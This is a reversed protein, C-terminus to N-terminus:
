DPRDLIDEVSLVRYVAPKDGVTRVDVTAIFAKRFPNDPQDLITAKVHDSAFRLPVPRSSIRDIVGLDGAKGKADDRVQHLYLVEGPYIRNEPVKATLFRRVGNQVAGAEVSNINFTTHISVPGTVNLILQSGGDKAVPEVIQTIQEAQKKTPIQDGSPRSGIFFQVLDNLSTIFGAFVEIHDIFAHAQEAFPALEAIVSGSRLEKVYLKVNGKARDHGAAVVYDEYVQGLALLSLTLDKLEIPQSNRLEVHLTEDTGM